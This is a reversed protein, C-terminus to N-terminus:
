ANGLILKHQADSWEPWLQLHPRDSVPRAPPGFHRLGYSQENKLCWAIFADWPDDATWLKGDAGFLAYDAACSAPTGDPLKWGHASKSATPANTVKPKEPQAFAPDFGLTALEAATRGQGYLWRQRADSRYVETRVLKFGAATAGAEFRPARQQLLGHGKLLDRDAHEVPNASM